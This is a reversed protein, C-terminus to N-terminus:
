FQPNQWVSAAMRVDSEDAILASVVSPKLYDTAAYAAVRVGPNDINDPLFDRFCHHALLDAFQLQVWKTPSGCILDQSLRQGGKIIGRVHQCLSRGVPRFEQHNGAFVDLDDSPSFKEDVLSLAESVANFLCLFYPNEIKKDCVPAFFKRYANADIAQAFGYIRHNLIVSTLERVLSQRKELAWGSFENNQAWCETAHFVSVNFDPLHLVKQWSDVASVWQDATAVYGAVVCVPAGAHVGSEDMCAAIVAM